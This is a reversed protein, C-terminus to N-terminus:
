QYEPLSTQPFIPQNHFFVALVPAVAQRLDSYLDHSKM